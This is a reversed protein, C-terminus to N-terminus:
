GLFNRYEAAELILSELNSADFKIGQWISMALKSYEEDSEFDIESPIKLEPLLKSIINKNSFNLAKKIDYLFSVDQKLYEIDEKKLGGLGLIEPPVGISYLSACFTIARPLIVKGEGRSYGFLGVHLARARRKPIYPAISNILPALREVDKQYSKTLRQIIDLSKNVDIERPKSRKHQNI